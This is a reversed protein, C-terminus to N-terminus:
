DDDLDIPNQPTNTFKFKTKLYLRNSRRLPAEEGESEEEEEEETDGDQQSAENTKGKNIPLTDASPTGNPEHATAKFGPTPMFLDGLGLGILNKKFTELKKTKTSEKAKASEKSKTPEGKTSEEDKASSLDKDKGCPNVMRPLGISKSRQNVMWYPREVRKTYVMKEKGKSTTSCQTPQSTQCKASEVIPERIVVGPLSARRIPLKAKSRVGDTPAKKQPQPPTPDKGPPPTPTKEGTPFSDKDCAPTSDKKVQQFHIKTVQMQRIM